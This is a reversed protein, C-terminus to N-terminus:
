SPTHKVVVSKRAFKHALEADRYEDIFKM